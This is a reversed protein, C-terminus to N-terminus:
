NESPREIHDIVVVDLPAKAQELKLSLQEQLATFISPGSGDASPDDNWDFNETEAWDPLGSIQDLMILNYASM